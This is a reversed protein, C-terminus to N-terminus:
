WRWTSTGRFVEGWSLLKRRRRRGWGALWMVERLRFVSSAMGTDSGRSTYIPVEEEDETGTCADVAVSPVESALATSAEVEEEV